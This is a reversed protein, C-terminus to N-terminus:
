RAAIFPEFEDVQGARVYVPYTRVGDVCLTALLDAGSGVEINDFMGIGLVPHELPEGSALAERVAIRRELRNPKLTEDTRVRGKELWEYALISKQWSEVVRNLDVIICVYGAPAVM